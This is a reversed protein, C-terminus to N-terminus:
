ITGAHSESEDPSVECRPATKNYRWLKLSSDLDLSTWIEQMGNKGDLKPFFKSTYETSKYKM